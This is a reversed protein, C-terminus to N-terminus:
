CACYLNVQIVGIPEKFQARLRQGLLVGIASKSQVSDGTLM